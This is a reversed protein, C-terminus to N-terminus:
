PLDELLQINAPMVLTMADPTGNPAFFKVIVEPTGASGPASATNVEIGNGAVLSLVGEPNAVLDEIVAKDAASM